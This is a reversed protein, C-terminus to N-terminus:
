RELKNQGLKLVQRININIRSDTVYNNFPKWFIENTFTNFVNDENELTNKHTNWPESPAKTIRPIAHYCLRSEKSMIVIDGSHIFIPTAPYDETLGGILFIASQGFSFLGFIKIINIGYM